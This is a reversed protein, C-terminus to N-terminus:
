QGNLHISDKQRYDQFSQMYGRLSEPLPILGTKPDFPTPNLDPKKLSRDTRNPRIKRSKPSSTLITTSKQSKSQHHSKSSVPPSKSVKSIGEVQDSESTLSEIQPDQSPKTPALDGCRFRVGNTRIIALLKLRKTSDNRRQPKSRLRLGSM